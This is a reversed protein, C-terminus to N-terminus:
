RRLLLRRISVLHLLVAFPVVVAPLWVFPFSFIITNAPPNNFVRFPYPTSLLAIVVINALLGLSIFNWLLAIQPSWSKRNFCYYAVVPASIGALIDYNYGSFTMQVPLAKYTYLLWLIFEMLIRFSQPYILWFDDLAGCLEHFSKSFFLVLFFIYPPAVILIIRPPMATYDKLFGSLAIILTFLLWTLVVIISISFNNRREEYPLNLRNSGAYVAIVILFAIAFVLAIFLASIHLPIIPM